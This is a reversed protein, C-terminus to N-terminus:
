GYVIEGAISGWARNITQTWSMVVSAGTAPKRQSAGKFRGGASGMTSLYHQTGSATINSTSTSQYHFIADYVINKSSATNVTATIPSTTGTAAVASAFSGVGQYTAAGMIVHSESPSLPDGISEFTAIVNATGPAVATGVWVEIVGGGSMPVVLSALQSLTTNGYTVGTVNIGTDGFAYEIRQITVVIGLKSGTATHPLEVTNGTM